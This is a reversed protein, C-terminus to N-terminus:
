TRAIAEPEGDDLILLQAGCGPCFSPFDWEGGYPHKESHWWWGPQDDEDPLITVSHGPVHLLSITVPETEPEYYQARSYICDTGSLEGCTYYERSKDLSM